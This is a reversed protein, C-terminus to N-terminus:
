TARPPPVVTPSEVGYADTDGALGADLAVGVREWPEGPAQVAEVIRGSAGDHGSYWMRLTGDKEEVVSPGFARLSDLGASQGPAPFVEQRHLWGV